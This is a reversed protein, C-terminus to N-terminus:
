EDGLVRAQHARLKAAELIGILEYASATNDGWLVVETGDSGEMVVIVRTLEPEEAEMRDAWRRACDAIDRFNYIDLQEVNDHALRLTM